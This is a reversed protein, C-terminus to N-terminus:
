KQLGTWYNCKCVSICTNRITFVHIVYANAQADRSSLIRFDRTVYFSRNLNCAVSAIRWLYKKRRRRIKTEHFHTYSTWDHACGDICEFPQMSLRYYCKFLSLCARPLTARGTCGRYGIIETVGRAFLPKWKESNKGRPIPPASSIYTMTNSHWQPPVFEVWLNVSEYM